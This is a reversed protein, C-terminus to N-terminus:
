EKKNFQEQLKILDAKGNKVKTAQEAAQEGLPSDKYTSALDEYLGIAVDLEGLAERAQAEGYKCEQVLIPTKKFDNALKSFSIAASDLREIAKDRKTRDYIDPLGLALNERARLLRSIPDKDDLDETGTASWTRTWRKGARRDSAGQVMNWVIFLVVALLIIGGIVVTRRSPGEKLGHGVKELTSVLTNTKLEKRHEAKM